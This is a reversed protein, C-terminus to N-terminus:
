EPTELILVTSNKLTTDPGLELVQAKRKQTTKGEKHVIEKGTYERRYRGM